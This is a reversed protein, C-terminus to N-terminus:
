DKNLKNKNRRRKDEPMSLYQERRAGKISLAFKYQLVRAM